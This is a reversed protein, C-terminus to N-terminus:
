AMVAEKWISEMENKMSGIMQCLITQAVSLMMLYVM